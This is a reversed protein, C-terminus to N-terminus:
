NLGNLSDGVVVRSVVHRCGQSAVLTVLREAVHVAADLVLVLEVALKVGVELTVDAFLDKVRAEAKACVHFLTM